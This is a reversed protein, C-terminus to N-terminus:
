QRGLEDVTLRQGAHDAPRRGPRHLAHQRAARGPVHRGASVAIQTFGTGIHAIRSRSAQRPRHPQDPVGRQRRLLVGHRHRHGADVQEAHDAGPQGHSGAASWPKGNVVVEVSQVAQGSSGSPAAGLLTWLLQASVQQMVDNRQGQRHRRGLNVVATGGDLTVSSVKTKAPFATKTAGDSLWDTPPTILDKVLGNM